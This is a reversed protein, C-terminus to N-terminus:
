EDEEGGSKSENGTQYGDVIDVDAVNLTQVRDDGDEVPPLNMIELCQNTTLIGLPRLQRIMETKTKTDAYSLRNADFVIRNGARIESPSFIKRTFEQALQLAIPELTSEYFSSWQMENYNGQAIEESIGYYRYINARIYDLQATDAGDPDNNCPTFDITGDVVVIGGHEPNKLNDALIKAKESWAKTGAQGAIRAVGKIKGSNVAANEFSSQLVDLLRLNMDLNDRYSTIFEGDLFRNRLHIVDKYPITRKRGDLFSFQLFIEGGAERAEVSQYDLVNLATAKGIGNRTVLAFSNGSMIMQSILKYYFSYAGMLDNPSMNLMIDLASEDVPTKSGGTLKVHVGHLKACHKAIVDVCTKVLIDDTYNQRSHFVQQGGSLYQISVTRDTQPAETKFLKKFM